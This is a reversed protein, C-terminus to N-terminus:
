VSKGRKILTQFLLNITFAFLLLIIGLALALSFEGKAMEFTIATTLNRTYNRINGGLMMSAGVEAFIRGFGAIVSAGIGARVEKALSMLTQFKTAGLTLATKEIREDADELVSITLAIIIPSALIFQGIIMAFPTYLIEFNGLISKRCLFSYVLLGVVVTPIALLTNLITVLSRKGKFHNTAILFAAPLSFITAITIATGTVWLSTWSIRLIEIDFSGILVFAQKLSDFIYEM